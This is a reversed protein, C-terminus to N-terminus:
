NVSTWRQKMAYICKHSFADEEFCNSWGRVGGNVEDIGDNVIDCTINKFISVKHLHVFVLLNPSMTKGIFDPLEELTDSIDGASVCAKENGLRMNWSVFAGGVAANAAIVLWLFFLLMPNPEGNAAIANVIWAVLACWRGIEGCGFEEDIGGDIGRPGLKQANVEGIEVEMGGHQVGLVHMEMKVDDGVFDDDMVVKAVNDNRVAPYVDLNSLDEGLRCGQLDVVQFACQWWLTSDIGFYM